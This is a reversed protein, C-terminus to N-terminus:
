QPKEASLADEIAGRFYALNQAGTFGPIDNVQFYPIESVGAQLAESINRDVLSKTEAGDLCKMFIDEKLNLKRAWLGYLVETSIIDQSAYLIDHYQWFRGQQQACRAALAARYSDGISEPIDKWVLRVSDPYLALLQDLTTASERCAPCTFSGAAIITVPADRPGKAPDTENVKLLQTQTDSTPVPGVGTNTSPLTGVLWLFVVGILVLFGAVILIARM